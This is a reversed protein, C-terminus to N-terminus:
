KVKKRIHVTKEIIACVEGNEDVLDISYIRDLKETSELEKKITKLEEDTLLAQAYLTGKSPKKFRIYSAKDWVIYDKGLNKLLLTFYMPDTAAFMSGGFTTGVYNRSRWNLPLKLHAERLDDSLYIIKAGTTWFAPFLNFATRMLCTKISEPM